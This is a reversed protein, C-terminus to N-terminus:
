PSRLVSFVVKPPESLKSRILRQWFVTKENWYASHKVHLLKMKRRYKSPKFYLRDCRYSIYMFRLRKAIFYGGSCTLNHILYPKRPKATTEPFDVKM